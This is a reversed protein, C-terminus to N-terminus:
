VNAKIIKSFIDYRISNLDQEKLEFVKTSIELNVLYAPVAERNNDISDILNEALSRLDSYIDIEKNNVIKSLADYINPYIIEKM